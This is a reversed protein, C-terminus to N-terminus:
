DGRGHQSPSQRRPTSRLVDALRRGNSWLDYHREVHERGAIAYDQRRAPDGLLGEIAAALATVDGPAVLVGCRGGNLMEPIGAMDSAIVPTGVALAEKVVNPMTDLDVAPHVLITSERMAQFVAGSGIWGRFTVQPAIGLAQALKRLRAEEIGGGILVLNAKCGRRALEAVAEILCHFGKLREFRGVALLNAPPRPSPRFHLDQLDLGSPHIHIKSAVRPFITRYRDRIYGRNFECVLFINDAYLLNRVLGVPYEYLDARARAFTSFPVRSDTLRHFLYACSAAYSGWYALIHDYAPGFRRAWAWAKAAVYATKLTAGVGYRAASSEVRVLDALFSPLRGIGGLRLHARLADRLSIHHVRDPSIICDDGTEGGDSRGADPPYFPFVDVECGEKVLARIDRAFFTSRGPFQNTFVALRM